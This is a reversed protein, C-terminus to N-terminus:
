DIPIIGGVDTLEGETLEIYEVNYKILFDKISESNSHEDLNGTFLVTNDIRGCCGGIFGYEQGKLKVSGKSVEICDIGNSVCSFYISPDDTIVANDSVPVTSCAAYGQNCDILKFGTKEAYSVVEPAISDIRGILKGSSLYRCNLRVDFPYPSRVSDKIIIYKLREGKSTFYNVINEQQSRDVFVVDNLRLYNCDAHTCICESTNNNRITEIVNFGLSCLKETIRGDEGSVIVTKGSFRM